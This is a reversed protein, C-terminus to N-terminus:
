CPISALYKREHLGARLQVDLLKQALLVATPGDVASADAGVYATLEPRLLFIPGGVIVGIQDNCSWQRVARIVEALAEIQLENSLALGIVAFWERKLLARLEGATSAPRSTVEWGADRMFHEVIALGLTHQEGPAGTLLVSRRLDLVEPQETRLGSVLTQLRGVGLTVDVFTCLDQEWLRGLLCASPALLGLFLGEPSHGQAIMGDFYDLFPVVNPAIALQVFEAIQEDPLPTSPALAEPSLTPHRLVLRPIVDNCVVRSLEVHREWGTNPVRRLGPQEQAQSPYGSRSPHADQPDSFPGGAPNHM